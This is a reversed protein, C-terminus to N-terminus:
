IVCTSAPSLLPFVKVELFNSLFFMNQMTVYNGVKELSCDVVDFTSFKAFCSNKKKPSLSIQKGLRLLSM